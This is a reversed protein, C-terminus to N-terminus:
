VKSTIHTVLSQFQVCTSASTVAGGYSCTRWRVILEVDDLPLLVPPRPGADGTGPSADADAPRETVSRSPVCVNRIETSTPGSNEASSSVTLDTSRRSSIWARCSSVISPLVLRRSNLRSNSSGSATSGSVRTALMGPSPRRTMWAGIADYECPANVGDGPELLRGSIVTKIVGYGRRGDSPLATMTEGKSPCRCYREINLRLYRYITTDIM